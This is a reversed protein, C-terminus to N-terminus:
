RNASTSLRVIGTCRPYQQCGWFSQGAFRGRAAERKTMATGCQPCVPISPEVPAAAAIPAGHATGLLEDLADRDILEIQTHRAFERAERTFVGCTVVYGGSAGIAAIVGNLERLITVGVQHKKWQKCQVLFREGNRALALDVCGDPRSAGFGTVRFGRRRFAEGILREFDRWTM